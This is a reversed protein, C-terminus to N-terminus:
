LHNGGRMASTGSGSGSGNDGGQLVHRASSLAHHHYPRYLTQYFGGNSSSSSSSKRAPISSHQQQPYVRYNFANNGGSRVPLSSIFSRTSTSTTNSPTTTTTSKQYNYSLSRPALDSRSRTTTTTTGGGGGGGGGGGNTVTIKAIQARKPSGAPSTTASVSRGGNFTSMTNHSNITRVPSNNASRLRRKTLDALINTM